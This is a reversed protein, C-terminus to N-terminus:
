RGSGGAVGGVTLLMLLQIYPFLPRRSLRINTREVLSIGLMEHFICINMAVECSHTDTNQASRNWEV